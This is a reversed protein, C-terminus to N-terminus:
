GLPGRKMLHDAIQAADLLEFATGSREPTTEPDDESDTESNGSSSGGPANQEASQEPPLADGESPAIVQIEGPELAELSALTVRSDERRISLFALGLLGLAGLQAM